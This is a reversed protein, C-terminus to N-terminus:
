KNEKERYTQSRIIDFAEIQDVELHIEERAKGQEVVIARLIFANEEYYVRRPILTIEQYEEASPHYHVRIVKEEQICKVLDWQMKLTASQHANDPYEVILKRLMEPTFTDNRESIQYLQNILGAMEDKRLAKSGLLVVLIAAFEVESLEKRATKTMFYLNSTKDFVIEKSSFNDALFNRIDEIDRDFSRESIGYELSFSSKNVSGGSYLQLFLALIREVKGM